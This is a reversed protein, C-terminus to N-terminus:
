KEKRYSSVLELDRVKETGQGYDPWLISAWQQASGLTFFKLVLGPESYGQNMKVLDGIRISRVSMYKERKM